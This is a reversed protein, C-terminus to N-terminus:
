SRGSFGELYSGGGDKQRKREDEERKYEREARKEERERNQSDKVFRQIDEPSTYGISKALEVLQALSSMRAVM